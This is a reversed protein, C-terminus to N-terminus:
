QCVKENVYYAEVVGSPTDSNFELMKLGNPTKAFDFRGIVTPISPDIMLRITSWTESPLGLSELLEESGNQVIRAVKAFIKGLQFTAERIERLFSESVEKITALAYEQQYMTDWTFIGEKQLPSYIEKRRDRYNKMGEM